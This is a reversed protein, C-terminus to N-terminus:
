GRALVIHMHRPGHAGRVNRAEIDATGSTGAVISLLRPQAVGAVGLHLWLDEPYALITDRALVVVHRLPLFNLLMPADPGSRFVVSGTEAIGYEAWTVATGGDQALAHDLAFGSWDLKDLPAVPQVSIRLAEDHRHLYDAIAAPVQALSAVQAVTATVRESTAGAIFRAVVSLANFKPQVPGPDAVLRAAEQAIAAPASPVTGNAARIAALIASRASM